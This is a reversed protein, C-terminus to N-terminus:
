ELLRNYKLISLRCYLTEMAVWTDGQHRRNADAIKKCVANFEARKEPKVRTVYV